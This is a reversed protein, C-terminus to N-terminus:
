RGDHVASRVHPADEPLLAVAPMITERLIKDLSGFIALGLRPMLGVKRGKGYEFGDHLYAALRRLTNLDRPGLYEVLQPGGGKKIERVTPMDM